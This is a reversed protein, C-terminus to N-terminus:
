DQDAASMDKWEQVEIDFFELADPVPGPQTPRFPACTGGFPTGEFTAEGNRTLEPVVEEVATALENALNEVRRKLRFYRPSEKLNLIDLMEDMTIQISM